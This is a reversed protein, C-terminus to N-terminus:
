LLGQVLPLFSVQQLSPFLHLIQDSRILTFGVVVERLKITEFLLELLDITLEARDGLRDNLRRIHRSQGLPPRAFARGLTHGVYGRCIRGPVGTKSARAPVCKSAARRSSVRM